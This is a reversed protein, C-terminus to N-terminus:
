KNEYKWVIIDNSRIIYNSIGLKAEQNNIYYTWYFGTRPSNKKGNIEEVFYGLSSFNKVSFTIKNEQQLALMAEYVTANPKVQIQFTTDEIAITIPITEPKQESITNTPTLAIVPQNPQELEATPTDKPKPQASTYIETNKKLVAPETDKAPLTDPTSTPANTTPASPTNNSDPIFLLYASASTAILLLFILLRHLYKNM